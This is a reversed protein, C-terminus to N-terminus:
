PIKAAQQCSSKLGLACAKKFFKKAEAPNKATGRGDRYIVGAMACGYRSDAKCGQKFLTLARTPNTKIIRIGINTCAKKYTGACAKKFYRTSETRSKEVGKGEDHARGLFFCSKSHGAECGKKLYGAAKKPDSKINKNALRMCAKGDGKKCDKELQKGSKREGYKSECLTKCFSRAAKLKLKKECKRKCDRLKDKKSKCNFLHLSLACCLLALPLQKLSRTM